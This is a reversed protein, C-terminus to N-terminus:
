RKRTLASSLEPAGTASPSPTPELDSNSPSLKKIQKLVRNVFKKPDKKPAAYVFREISAESSTPFHYGHELYEHVFIKALQKYSLDRKHISPLNVEYIELFANFLDDDAFPIDDTSGQAGVPNKIEARASFTTEPSVETRLGEREFASRLGQELPIRIYDLFTHIWGQVSNPLGHKDRKLVDMLDYVVDVAPHKRGSFNTSMVSPTPEGFILRSAIAARLHVESTTFEVGTNLNRKKMHHRIMTLERKNLPNQLFDPMYTYPKVISSLNVRQTMAFDALAKLFPHNNPNGETYLHIKKGKEALHYALRSWANQENVDIPDKPLLVAVRNSVSGNEHPNLMMYVARTRADNAREDVKNNLKQIVNAKIDPIHADVHSVKIRWDYREILDYIEKIYGFEMDNRSPIESPDFNYFRDRTGQCDTYIDITSGILGQDNENLQRQALQRLGALVALTEGEQSKSQEAAVGQYTLTQLDAERRKSSDSSSNSINIIGAYGSFWLDQDYSADCVIKIHAM